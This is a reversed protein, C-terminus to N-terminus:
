PLLVFNTSTVVPMMPSDSRCIRVPRFSPSSTIVPGLRTRLVRLSPVMTFRWTFFSPSFAFLDQHIAKHVVFVAVSCLRRVVSCRAFGKDPHLVDPFGIVHTHLLEM